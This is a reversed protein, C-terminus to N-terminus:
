FLETQGASVLLDLTDLRILAAQRSVQFRAALRAALATAEPTGRVPSRGQLAAEVEARFVPLLVDRPMLLGAMGINAQVEKWDSGGGFTVDRKLCRHLIPTSTAAVDEPESGFLGPLAAGRTFLVSHLIVHAAEHALTARWRGLMGPPSEDQDLASGTLDRNILIRPRGGPRFETLGLVTPDLEAYQDLEARLHREVFSELDVVPSDPTPYVNARLLENAVRAEIEGTPLWNRDPERRHRSSRM